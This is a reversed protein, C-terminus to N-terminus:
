LMRPLRIMPEPPSEEPVRRPGTEALPAPESVMQTPQEPQREPLPPRNYERPDISTDTRLIGGGPAPARRTGAPVRAPAAGSAQVQIPQAPSDEFSALWQKAAVHDTLASALFIAAGSCGLLLAYRAAFSLRTSQRVPTYRPEPEAPGLDPEMGPIEVAPLEFVKIPRGLGKFSRLGVALLVPPNGERAQNLADETLWTTGPNASQQLRAAVNCVHGILDGPIRRAEGVAMGATHRLKLALPFDLDRRYKWDRFGLMTRLAQPASGFALLMTSGSRKIVEGGYGVAIQALADQHTGLEQLEQSLRDRGSLPLGGMEVFLITLPAGSAAESSNREARM